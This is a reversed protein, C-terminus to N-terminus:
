SDHVWWIDATELSFLCGFLSQIEIHYNTVWICLVFVSIQHLTSPTQNLWSCQQFTFVQNGVRQTVEQCRQQGIFFCPSCNFVLFNSCVLVNWICVPPLNAVKLLNGKSECFILLSVKMVRSKLIQIYCTNRQYIKFYFRCIGICRLMYWHRQDNQSLM